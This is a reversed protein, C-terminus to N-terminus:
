ALDELLSTVLTGAEKKQPRNPSPLGRLFPLAGIAPPSIPVGVGRAKAGERLSVLAACLALALLLWRKDDM